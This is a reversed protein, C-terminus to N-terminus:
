LINIKFETALQNSPIGILNITPINNKTTFNKFFIREKPQDLCYCGFQSDNRTCIFYLQAEM